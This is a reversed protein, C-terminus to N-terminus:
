HADQSQQLSILAEAHVRLQHLNEPSLRPLKEIIERVDNDVGPVETSPTKKNEGTILYEYSVGFYDAVKQVKDSSPKHKDWRSINGRGIETIKELKNFTIGQGECLTRIRDVIGM